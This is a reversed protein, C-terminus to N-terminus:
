VPFVVLISYCQFRQHCIRYQTAPPCQLHTRAIIWPLQVNIPGGEHPLLELYGKTKWKSLWTHVVQLRCGTHDAIEKATVGVSGSKEILIFFEENLM